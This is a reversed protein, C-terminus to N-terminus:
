DFVRFVFKKFLVLASEDQEYISSLDETMNGSLLIDVRRNRLRTQRTENSAIPREAGCGYATLRMPDIGGAVVFYRLVELARLSSLAQNSRVGKEQPPRSDTHGTIEVPYSKGRIIKCLDKLFAYGAPKLQYGNKGFLIKDQISVQRGEPTTQITVPETGQRGAQELDVTEETRKLVPVSGPAIVRVTGERSPSMGGPLIGFSGILSGLASLSKREDIVAMSNLVIFFALLIIFLSVTMVRIGDQNPGGSGEGQKKRNAM